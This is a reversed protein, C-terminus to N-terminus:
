SSSRSKLRRGRQALQRLLRRQRLRPLVADLLLFLAFVSYAAVIFPTHNM